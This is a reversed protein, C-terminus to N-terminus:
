LCANGGLTEPEKLHIRHRNTAYVAILMGYAAVGIIFVAVGILISNICTLVGRYYTQSGGRLRHSRNFGDTPRSFPEMKM